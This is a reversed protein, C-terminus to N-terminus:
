RIRFELWEVKKDQVLQKIKQQLSSLRSDSAKFECFVISDPEFAIGDIPSGLFRFNEPSFPLQDLFPVFQETIKGYKVSQSQKQFLTQEFKAELKSAKRYFFLLLILLFFIVAILAAVLM